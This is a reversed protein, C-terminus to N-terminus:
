YDLNDEVSTGVDLQPIKPSELNKDSFAVKKVIYITLTKKDFNCVYRGIVVGSNTYVVLEYTLDQSEMKRVLKALDSQTALKLVQDHLNKNDLVKEIKQYINIKLNDKVSYIKYQYTINNLPLKSNLYLEYENELKYINIEPKGKTIIESTDAQIESLYEVNFLDDVKPLKFSGIINKNNIVLCLVAGFLLTVLWFSIGLGYMIIGSLDYVTFSWQNVLTLEKWTIPAYYKLLASWMTNLSLVAILYAYFLLILDGKKRKSIYYQLNKQIETYTLAYPHYYEQIGQISKFIRNEFIITLYLVIFALFGVLGSVMWGSASFRKEIITKAMETNSPQVFGYIIFPLIAVIVFLSWSFFSRM